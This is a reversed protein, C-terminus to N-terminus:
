RVMNLADDLFKVLLYCSIVPPKPVEPMNDGNAGSGVVNGNEDYCVCMMIDDPHEDGFEENEGFQM